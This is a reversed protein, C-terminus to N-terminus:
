SWGNTTIINEIRLKQMLDRVRKSRESLVEKKGLEVKYIKSLELLVDSVSMKDNIEANKLIKLILYYAILALFSAFLYGRFTEEKRVYPRDTDLMNQLVDFVKEIQDRAKWMEYIEKPHLKKNSILAIKGAQHEKFEVKKGKSLMLLYTKEEEAKLSIDEYLYVFFDGYRYATYKIPRKRYVFFSKLKSKYNIMKSNRRLPMIFSLGKELIRKPTSNSYFGKDLVVITDEGLDEFLIDLTTIEHVSGPVLRFFVPIRRNYSFALVINAKTLPLQDKNYGRELLPNENSSSFIVSGDYIIKEGNKMLDQFFEYQTKWSMGVVSLIRSIRKPSIKDIKKVLYTKEYWQCMSKIPRPDILRNMAFVLLVDWFDPFQKRMIRLIGNKELVHWVFKVHGYEYIGKLSVEYAKRIGKQEVVGLYRSIKKPRKKKKDWINKYEYIYYRGNREKIEISKRKGVFKKVWEPWKDKSITKM